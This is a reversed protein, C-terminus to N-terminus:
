CLSRTVSPISSRSLGPAGIKMRPGDRIAIKARWQEFVADADLVELCACAERGHGSMPCDLNIRLGGREFGLITGDRGYHGEFLERFGLSDVYFRRAKAPDDMPLIPIARENM